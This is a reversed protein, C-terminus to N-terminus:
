RRGGIGEAPRSPLERIESQTLAVTEGKWKGTTVKILYLPISYTNDVQSIRGEGLKTKVRSGKRLAM